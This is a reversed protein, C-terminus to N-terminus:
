SDHQANREVHEERALGPVRRFVDPSVGFYRLLRVHHLRLGEVRVDAAGHSKLAQALVAIAYDNLDRVRSFDLRVGSAGSMRKLSSELFRAAPLDFTGELRIVATPGGRTANM